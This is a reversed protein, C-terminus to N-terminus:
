PRQGEEFVIHLIHETKPTVRVSEAITFGPVFLVNKGDCLIPVRREEPLAKRDTFFDSLSKEGPAGLPTFRDGNRRARILASEPVCAADLYAENKGISAPRGDAESAYFTGLPTPTAGTRCFPTEFAPSEPYRGVFLADATVWAHGGRKIEIRTGSPKGLLESVRRVDSREVDGRQAAFLIRKLARARVPEALALLKERKWGGSVAAQELAQAAESDLYTEDQQLLAATSAIGPVAQPNLETLLPLLEQRVRNRFMETDANTSDTCYAQGREWLFAEIESRRVNLLPRILDGSRMWMGCLGTLGSGRLLRMLVTEAQDDMHHAVAICSAGAERAARRLFAYRADRAATEISRGTKEALAPVDARGLIIRVGLRKALMASFSADRDAEEGRIGHHLHAATVGGLAGAHAADLMTLLLAVSDAGGSLGVLVTDSACIGCAALTKGSILSM